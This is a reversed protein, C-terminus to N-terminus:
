MNSASASQSRIATIAFPRITPSPVGASSFARTTSPRTVSISTNPTSAMSYIGITSMAIAIPLQVLSFHAPTAVIPELTGEWRQRQIASSATVSTASWIGMVSAGLSAYLLASPDHRTRFMFFATTAFFLPWIVGLIGTFPSRSLMKLHLVFGVWVVRVANM